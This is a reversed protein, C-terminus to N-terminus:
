AIVPAELLKLKNLASNFNELTAAVENQQDYGSAMLTGVMGAAATVANAWANYTYGKAQEKAIITQYYSMATPGANGGLGKTSGTLGSDKTDLGTTTLGSYTWAGYNTVTEAVVKHTGAFVEKERAEIVKKETALNCKQQSAVSEQAGILAIEAATKSSETKLSDVKHKSGGLLTPEGYISETNAQIAICEYYIKEIQATKLDGELELLGLEKEIQRKKLYLDKENSAWQLATSMAANTISSSLSSLVNSIVEAKDASSMSSNEFLADLTERTRIYISDAAVSEQM